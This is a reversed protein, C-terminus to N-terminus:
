CRWAASSHNSFHSFGHATRLGSPACHSLWPRFGQDSATLRDSGWLPAIHYGPASGRTVPAPRGGPSPYTPARFPRLRRPGSLRAAPRLAGLVVAVNAKLAPDTEKAAFLDELGKVQGDALVPSHQQIHRLLEQAAATRLPLPRNPELVLNALDLQPTRGPLRG